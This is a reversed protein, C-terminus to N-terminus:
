CERSEDRQWHPALPGPGDENAYDLGLVKRAADRTLYRCFYVQKTPSRDVEAGDYILTYPVESKQFKKLDVVPVHLGVMANQPVTVTRGQLWPSLFGLTTQPIDEGPLFGRAHLASSLVMIQEAGKDVKFGALVQMEGERHQPQVVRVTPPKRDKAPLWANGDLDEMEINVSVLGIGLKEVYNNLTLRVNAILSRVEESMESVYRDLADLAARFTEKDDLPKGGLNSTIGMFDSANNIGNAVATGLKDPKVHLVPIIIGPETEPANEAM